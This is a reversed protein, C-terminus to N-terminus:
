DVPPPIHLRWVIFAFFLSLISTVLTVVNSEASMPQFVNIAALLMMALGLLGDFVLFITVARRLKTRTGRTRHNRKFLM